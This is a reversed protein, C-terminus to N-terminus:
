GKPLHGKPLHRGTVEQVYRPLPGQAARAALFASYHQDVIQYLLAQM